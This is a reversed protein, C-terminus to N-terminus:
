VRLKDQVLNQTFIEITDGVQHDQFNELSLGCEYGAAVERVDEKFRRLSNLVGTFIVHGNRIVRAGEARVVKGSTVFCGAITGRPTRFTQRVELRGLVVEEVKPALLGEMAKKLEDIAEYIISYCKVEVEERRAEQEAQPEINVHFGITVADSAAALAIDSSNIPGVGRHIVQLQVQENSLRGIQADLAELSGQVDAKVILRLEKVTGSKVGQALDQLTIHRRLMRDEKEIDKYKEAAARAEREDTIVQLRAGPETVQSLGLLEIPTSPGAESLTEGHSGLMRRVRGYATGCTIIDGVHLTGKTVLITAVPGRSKHMKAELVTGEARGKSVAKLELMEAELLLMELLRDLGTKKKASVEIMITKGGWEEATLDYATLEQKVRQPNAEPRDMKNIAVVIPVGAARAHDIAEVTQPMVGDDAAVVLVVVDTVKAGRARLATFAEHGPTDLFVVEGRGPLSVKYAGIHQTIAGAEGSAVNTKRIADLLSTKGHDVHGMITVVPARPKLDVAKSSDAPLTQKTEASGEIVDFSFIGGIKMVVELGVRQNLTVLMREQLLSRIIEAPKLDMAKALEALTVPGNFTYARKQPEPPPEAPQVPLQPELPVAPEKPVAPTEAPSSAPAQTYHELVIDTQEPTITSIAQKAPLNREKLYALIEKSTVGLEKALEFVRTAKRAM